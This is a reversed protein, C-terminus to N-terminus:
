PNEIIVKNNQLFGEDFDAKVIVSFNNYQEM